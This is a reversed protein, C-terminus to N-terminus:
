IDVTSHFSLPDLHLMRSRRRFHEAGNRRLHRPPIPDRAEEVPRRHEQPPLYDRLARAHAPRGLLRPNTRRCEQIRDSNRHHRGARGTAQAAQRARSAHRARRQRRLCSAPSGRYFSASQLRPDASAEETARLLLDLAKDPDAPPGPQRRELEATTLYPPTNPRQPPRRNKTARKPRLQKGASAAATRPTGRRKRM